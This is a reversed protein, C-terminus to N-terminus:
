FTVDGIANHFEMIDTYIKSRDGDWFLNFSNEPGISIGAALFLQNVRFNITGINYSQDNLPGFAGDINAWNSGKLLKGTLGDFLALQGDVDAFAPGVVDGSGGGSMSDVYAKTAADQDDTPDALDTIKNGDWSIDASPSNSGDLALATAALFSEVFDRNAADSPDIPDGLNTLRFGGWDIHAAPSNDGNRHISLPDTESGTTEVATILEEAAETDALAVVLIEKLRDSLM